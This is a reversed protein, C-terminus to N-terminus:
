PMEGYGDDLRAAAATLLEPVASLYWYTTSPSVHGLYTSLRPLRVQVDLGQQYWRMLSTVAFSHRLDHIRPVPECADLGTWQRLRSFNFHVNKYFLSTGCNSVFFTTDRPQPIVTDRLEAYRVMAWVTSEHLVLERSKDFKSHRITLVQSAPDLDHRDLAIAEGVRMGTVYLLGILTVYTSPKLRGRFRSCEVLLAQIEVDTYLHPQARPCSQKLLERSPVEHHPDLGHLYEIFPRVMSLRHAWWYPSADSPLTAWELALAATAVDSGRQEIFRAFRPLLQGERELKFGLARRIALYDEVARVLTSM